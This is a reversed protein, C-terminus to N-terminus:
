ACVRGTREKTNVLGVNSWVEHENDLGIRTKSCIRVLSTNKVASFIYPSLPTISLHVFVCSDSSRRLSAPTCIRSFLSMLSPASPVHSIFWSTVSSPASPRTQYVLPTLSSCRWPAAPYLVLRQSIDVREKQHTMTEM